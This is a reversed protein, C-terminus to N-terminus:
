LAALSKRRFTRVARKIKRAISPDPSGKYEAEVFLQTVMLMETRLEPFRESAREAFDNAGEGVRREIGLRSVALCFRLYSKDIASMPTRTRISFIFLGVIGLVTFFAALMM